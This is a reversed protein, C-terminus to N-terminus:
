IEIKSRKEKSYQSLVRERLDFTSAENVIHLSAVTIFNRRLDEKKAEFLVKLDLLNL